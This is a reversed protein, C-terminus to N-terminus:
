QWVTKRLSNKAIFSVLVKVGSALRRNEIRVAVGKELDVLIIFNDYAYLSVSDGIFDDEVAYSDEPRKSFTQKITEQISILHVHGEARVSTLIQENEIIAKHISGVNKEGILDIWKKAADKSQLMYIRSRSKKSVMEYIANFVSDKSILLSIQINKSELSEDETRESKMAAKYFSDIIKKIKEDNESQFLKQNKTRIKRSTALGIKELSNLAKLASTRPIKALLSIKTASTGDKSLVM